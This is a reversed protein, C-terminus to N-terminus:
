ANTEEKPAYIYCYLDKTELENVCGVVQLGAREALVQVSRGTFFYMHFRTFEYKYAYCSTNHAIRSDAGRLLGAMFKMDAVPDALHELLDNSFIGDFRMKELTERDTIIYPNDVDAAYPEYGWVEYGEERLEQITHSWKGCGYDLYVGDKRPHLLEFAWREKWTCDTEFFGAYHVTYDDSFESETQDRFKLPGFICGCEPCEYRKLHGGAFICDTEVTKFTGEKAEYGCIGCRIMRGSLDTKEALHDRLQWKTRMLDRAAAGIVRQQEDLHHQLETRETGIKQHIKWDEAASAEKNEQILQRLEQGETGIKQHIKWDEAASAEKNEQIQQRLAQNEEEIKQHIKWDEAASAAKMEQLQERLAQNEAELQERLTQNEAELQERLDRIEERDANRQGDMLEAARYLEGVTEITLGQFRFIREELQRFIYLTGKRFLRQLFLKIRGKLGRGDATTVPIFDRLFHQSAEFQKLRARDLADRPTDAAAGSAAEAKEREEQYRQLLRAAKPGPKKGM